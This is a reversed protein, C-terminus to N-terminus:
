QYTKLLPAVDNAPVGKNRLDGASFAGGDHDVIKWRGAVRRLLVTLDSDESNSICMAWGHSVSVNAVDGFKARVLVKIQQVDKTNGFDRALLPSSLLLALGLLALLARGGRAFEQFVSRFHNHTM